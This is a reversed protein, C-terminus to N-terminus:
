NCWLLSFRKSITKPVASITTVNANSNLTLNKPTRHRLELLARNQHRHTNGDNSGVNRRPKSDPTSTKCQPPLWTPDSPSQM